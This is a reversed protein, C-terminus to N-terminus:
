QYRIKGAGPPPPPADSGPPVMAVQRAQESRKRNILAIRPGYIMGSIMALDIWLMARRSAAISYEDLIAAVTEALQEAESPALMLEDTKTLTAILAHM